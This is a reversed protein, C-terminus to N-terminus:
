NVSVKIQRGTSPSAFGIPVSLSMTATGPGTPIMIVSGGSAGGGITVPSIQLAAVDTANSTVDVLVSTGGRVSQSLLTPALTVPDLVNATVNLTVNGNAKLVGFDAGIGNPGAVVLGSPALTVQFTSSAFGPVSVTLQATGSNALTQVYYTPFGISSVGSGTSITSTISSGGSVTPATSLLVNPNNSTITVPLDSPAPADLAGSAAVQLNMGITSQIMRITARPQNVTAKIQGGSAPLTYGSPQGVTLNSTCPASCNPSPRFALSSNTADGSIFQAPNGAIDGAGSNSSTVTVNATVGPRLQGPMFPRLGTGLQWLSLTLTTPQSITTTVFDSGDNPSSLVFATPFLAVPATGSSYGIASATITASGSSSLAHVYFAPLQNTGAGVLMNISSAGTASPSTSLLVKGADSSTLTVQLGGNPALTDLQGSGQAILNFGISQPILLISAASVTATLQTGSAPSFYGVPQTVSLLTTGAAIPHFTVQGSTSKGPQLVAPNGIVSGTGPAGTIVTANAVVGGRLTQSATVNGNSDLQVSSVTLFADTGLTTKFNAGTGLSSNLVFGSHTLTVTAVARNYGPATVEIQATGSSDLAQVWFGPFGVGFKGQGKLVVGTISASGVQTGNADSSLPSLLVKSPDSSTITVTLDAGPAQDLAATALMELNYGLSFSPMSINGVLAAGTGSVLITDTHPSGGANDSLTLTANRMGSGKPTFIVNITSTAGSKISLPPLPAASFESGQNGTFAMNTITLDAGGTNKVAVLMPGSSTNVQQSPFDLSTPTFSIGPPSAISTGSVQVSQPSDSANDNFIFVSSRPGGGDSPSFAVTLDLSAGPPITEPFDSSGLSGLVTYRFEAPNAGSRSVFPIVLDASGANTITLLKSPSTTNAAVDGFNLSTPKIAFIARGIGKGSLSVTHPTGSADDNIILTALRDGVATPKFTVQLTTTGNDPDVTIPGPTSTQFDGPNTGGTVVSNIHLPASGTNRVLLSVATSALPVTQDGFAASTPSISFVPAIAVGTLQLTHPSGPASDTISLAASRNGTDTPKFVVHLIVTGGNPPITITGSESVTFDSSNVGSFSLGTIQLPVSGTNTVTVSLPASATSKLQQGFQLSTPNLTISSAIGNGSLGASHPSGVSNSSIMLSGSRPGAAGPKFVVPINTTGGTAAVIIASAPTPLTFNASFVFDGSNTGQFALATIRLEGNGSNTITLNAPASATGVTQDV